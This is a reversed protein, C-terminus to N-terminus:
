AENAVLLAGVPNSTLRRTPKLPTCGFAVSSICVHTRLIGLDHRTCTTYAWVEHLGVLRRFVHRADLLLRCILIMSQSQTPHDRRLRIYPQSPVGVFVTFEWAVIMKMRQLGMYEEVELCYM